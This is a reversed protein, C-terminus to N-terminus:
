KRHGARPEAAFGAARHEMPNKDSIGSNLREVPSVDNPPARLTGALWGAVAHRQM